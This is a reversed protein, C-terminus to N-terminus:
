SVALRRLRRRVQRVRSRLVKDRALNPHPEAGLKEQVLDAVALEITEPDMSPHAGRKRGYGAGM